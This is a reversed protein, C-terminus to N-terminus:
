EEETDPVAVVAMRELDVREGDEVMVACIRQLRAEVEQQAEDLERRQQYITRLTAVEPELAAREADNLDRVVVEANM